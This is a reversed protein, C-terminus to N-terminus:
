MSVHKFCNVSMSLQQGKAQRSFINILVPSHIVTQSELWKLFDWDLWKREFFVLLIPVNISAILITM